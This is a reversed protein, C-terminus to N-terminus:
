PFFRIKGRLDMLIYQTTNISEETNCRCQILPFFDKSYSIMEKVHYKLRSIEAKKKLTENLKKTKKTTGKRAKQFFFQNM